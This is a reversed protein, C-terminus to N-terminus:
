VHYFDYLPRVTLTVFHLSQTPMKWLGLSNDSFSSGGRPPYPALLCLGPLSRSFSANIVQQLYLFCPPDTGFCYRRLCGSKTLKLSLSCAYELLPKPPLCFGFKLEYTKTQKNKRKLVASCCISTGLSLTFNSSCSCAQAVALAINSRFQMKLRHHLKCCHWIRLGSLSALSQVQRRMSAIDGRLRSLWM